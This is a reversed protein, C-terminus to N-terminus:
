GCKSGRCKGPAPDIPFPVSASGEAADTSNGAGRVWVRVIYADSAVMPKWSWTSTTTWATAAGWVSGDFVWWRYQYPAAGGSAAASWRITSGARQPPAKDATLTVSAAPPATVAFPVSVAMEGSSSSSGSSRVAVKVQYDSGATSPTWTWTSSNTWPWVTWSGAGYLAWEFEYPAVGGAATALWNVATGAVQPSPVSATLALTTVVPPVSPTVTASVENSWDGFAGTASYARVAFYYTSGDSLGNVAYSTIYGVDVQWSYSQPAEGYSVIYGVTM